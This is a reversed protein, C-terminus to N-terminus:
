VIRLKHKSQWNTAVESKKVLAISLQLSLNSLLELRERNIILVILENPELDSVKKAITYGIEHATIPSMEVGRKDLFLFVKGFRHSVTVRHKNKQFILPQKAVEVKITTEPIHALNSM